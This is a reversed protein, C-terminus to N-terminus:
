LTKQKFSYSGMTLKSRLQTLENFTILRDISKNLM